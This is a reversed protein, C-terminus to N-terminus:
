SWAARGCTRGLRTAARAQAIGEGGTFSAPQGEDGSRGTEALGGQKAFPSNITRFISSGDGPDGEVFCVVVRRTEERVEKARKLADFRSYAFPDKGRQTRGLERGDLRQHAGQYVLQCLERVLDSHDQVVVVEDARVGHM